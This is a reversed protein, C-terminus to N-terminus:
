MELHQIHSFDYSPPIDIKRLILTQISSIQTLIILDQLPNQSLELYQLRTFKSFEVPLRSIKNKALYLEHLPLLCLESPIERIHNKSIKLVNLEKLSAIWSPIATIRNKWFDLYRIKSCHELASPIKRLNLNICICKQLNYLHLLFSFNHLTHRICLSEVFSIKPGIHMLEKEKIIIHLRKDLEKSYFSLSLFSEKEPSNHKKIDLHLYNSLFLWQTNNFLDPINSLYIWQLNPMRGLFLPLKKVATNYVKLTQLKTHTHLWQPIEQLDSNCLNLETFSFSDVLELDNLINHYRLITMKNRVSSQEPFSILNALLPIIIKIRDQSLPIKYFIQHLKSRYFSYFAVDQLDELLDFDLFSFISLFDQTSEVMSLLLEGGSTVNEPDKDFLLLGFSNIEEKTYRTDM